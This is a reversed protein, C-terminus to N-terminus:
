ERQLSVSNTRRGTKPSAQWEIFLELNRCWYGSTDHGRRRIRNQNLNTSLQKQLSPPLINLVLHRTDQSSHQAKTIMAIGM